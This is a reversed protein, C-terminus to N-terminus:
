KIRLQNKIVSVINEDMILEELSWRQWGRGISHVLIFWNGKPDKDANIFIDKVGSLVKLQSILQDDHHTLLYEFDQSVSVRIPDGEEDANDERMAAPNDNLGLYHSDRTIALSAYTRLAISQLNLERFGDCAISAQNNSFVPEGCSGLNSRVESAYFKMFELLLKTPSCSSACDCENASRFSCCNHQGTSERFINIIRELCAFCFTNATSMTLNFASRKMWEQVTNYLILVCYCGDGLVLKYDPLRRLLSEDSKNIFSSKPVSPAMGQMRMKKERIECLLDHVIWPFSLVPKDTSRYTVMYWASARRYKIEQLESQPLNNTSCESAYAKYFEINFRKMTDLIYTRAINMANEREHRNETYENMKGAYGTLAETESQLGYKKLINKVRKNYAQLFHESSDKYREWGSYEFHPDDTEANSEVDIKSVCAELNRTVRYLMGLAKNSKYSNRSTGKEMFDPYLKPKEASGLRITSGSKAFDLVLPYKRAINMCVKSFIGDVHNDAWALHANALVGINDNQIYTCLFDIM